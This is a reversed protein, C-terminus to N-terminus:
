AHDLFSGILHSKLHSKLLEYVIVMSYRPILIHEILIIVLVILLIISIRVLGAISGMKLFFCFAKLGPTSCDRM